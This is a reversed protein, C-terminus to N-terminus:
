ARSRPCRRAPPGPGQPGAAGAPGRRRCGARGADGKAGAPGAPGAPGGPGAAGPAGAAGRAGAVNWSLRREGSRCAAVIRVIGSKKNVCANVVASARHTGRPQAAVAVGTVLALPLAALLVRTRFLRM